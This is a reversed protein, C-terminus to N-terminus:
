RNEHEMKVYAKVGCAKILSITETIDYTTLGSKILFENPIIVEFAAPEYGIWEFTIESIIDVAFVSEDFNTRDFVGLNGGIMESFQWKSRPLLTPIRETSIKALVDVGNLEAKDKSIKLVDGEKLSGNFTVWDGSTLNKITPQAVKAGKTMVSLTIEPSSEHITRPNIDWVQNSLLKWTKKYTRPPFEIIPVDYDSPLRLLIRLMMQIANKTGGGKYSLIAMKLRNRYDQDREGSKRKMDYLSGIKELDSERATDVWHSRFISILDYESEDLSSGIADIFSSLASYRDWCRYFHPLHNSISKKRAM